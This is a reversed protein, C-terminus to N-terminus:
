KWSLGSQVAFYVIYGSFVAKTQITLTKVSNQVSESNRAVRRAIVTTIIMSYYLESAKFHTIVPNLSDEM